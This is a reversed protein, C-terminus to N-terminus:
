SAMKGSSSVHRKVVRVAKESARGDGFLRKSARFPKPGVKGARRYAKAIGSATTGALFAAGAEVIEPWETEERVVVVPKGLWYAEKQLGGSDTVVSRARSVMRCATM